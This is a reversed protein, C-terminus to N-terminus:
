YKWEITEIFHQMDEYIFDIVPQVSDNNPLHSFYLAARLFHKSSDTIFFQYPSAAEKGSVIYQIGFVKRNRDTILKDKMGNSKPILKMTLSRSDELLTILNGDIKAYSFHLRAKHSPYDINFWYPQNVPLNDRNIKAYDSLEFVFPLNTDLKTYSHEPLDIRILGKPKPTYFDDCAFLSFTIFTLLFINRYKM